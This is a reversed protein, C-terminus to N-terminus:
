KTKKNPQEGNQEDAKRKAKATHAKGELGYMCNWFVRLDDNYNDQQLDILQLTRERSICSTKNGQSDVFSWYQEMSNVTQNLPVQHVEVASLLLVFQFIEDEPLQDLHYEKQWATGYYPFVRFREKDELTIDITHIANDATTTLFKGPFNIIL